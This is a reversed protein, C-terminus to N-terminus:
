VLTKPTLANESMISLPNAIWYELYAPTFYQRCNALLPVTKKMCSERICERLQSFSSIFTEAHALTTLANSFDGQLCHLGALALYYRGKLRHLNSADVDNKLKLLHEQAQKPQKEELMICCENIAVYTQPMISKAIVKAIRLHKKANPIDGCYLYAVGLNNSVIHLQEMGYPMLGNYAKELCTRAYCVNGKRIYVRAMNAYTTLEGYEDNFKRFANLAGKWKEEALDGQYLTASNRLFYGYQSSASISPGYDEVIKRAKDENGDHICNSVAISLLVAKENIDSSTSILEWIIEDANQHQRCRNLILGYLIRADRDDQIQPWVKTIVALADKYKWKKYLCIACLFQNEPEPLTRASDVWEISMPYGLKLSEILLERGWHAKRRPAVIGALEYLKVLEGITHKKKASLYRFIIEQYILADAENLILSNWFRQNDDRIRAYYIEEGEFCLICSLFGNQVLGGITQKVVACDVFSCTPSDNLMVLIDNLDVPEQLIHIFTLIENAIMSHDNIVPVKGYLAAHVIRRINGHTQQILLQANSDSINRSQNKWLEQVCEISPESFDVYRLSSKIELELLLKELLNSNGTQSMIVKINNQEALSMIDYMSSNDINQVNDIFLIVTKNAFERKVLEFFLQKIVDSYYGSYIPLTEPRDLLHVLTNGLAPLDQLMSDLLTQSYEGYCEDAYMQLSQYLTGNRIVISKCAEHLPSRANDSLESYLCVINETSQLLYCIRHFFATVGYGPETRYCIFKENESLLFSIAANVDEKRDAYAIHKMIIVM